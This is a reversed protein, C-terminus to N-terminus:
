FEGENPTLWFEVGLRYLNSRFPGFFPEVNRSRLFGGIDRLETNFFYKVNKFGYKWKKWIAKM